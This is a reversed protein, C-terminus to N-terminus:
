LFKIEFPKRKNRNEQGTGPSAPYGLILPAALQYNEPVGLEKKVAPDAFINHAEGIWCCGLGEEEALLGLNLAVMSCDHIHWYSESDGYIIIVTSANYFINFASDRLRDEYQRMQPFRDLNELWMRKAADSYDKLKAKGTVVVFRWPQLNSGSPVWVADNILETIKEQTLAVDTFNRCSRRRRTINKITDM